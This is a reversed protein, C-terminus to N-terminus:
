YRPSDPDEEDRFAVPPRLLEMILFAERAGRPTALLAPRSRHGFRRGRGAPPLQVTMEREPRQGPPRDPGNDPGNASVEPRASAELRDEDGITGGTTGPESRRAQQRTVVNVSAGPLVLRERPRFAQRRTVARTAEMPGQGQRRAFSLFSIAAFLAFLIVPVLLSSLSDM